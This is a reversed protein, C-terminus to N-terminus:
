MEGNDFDITNSSQETQDEVSDGRRNMVGTHNGDECHCPKLSSGEQMCGETQCVGHHQSLYGCESCVYHTQNTEDM